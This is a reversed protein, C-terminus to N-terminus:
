PTALHWTAEIVNYVATRHVKEPLPQALRWEQTTASLSVTVADPSVAALMGVWHRSEEILAEVLAHPPDSVEVPAADALASGAILALLRGLIAPPVGRDASEVWVYCDDHGSYWLCCGPLTPLIPQGHHATAIALAIEDLQQANPKNPLGVFTLEYPHWGALFGPVDDRRMVLAEDSLGVVGAALAAWDHASCDIGQAAAVQSPKWQVYQEDLFSNTAVDAVVVTDSAAKVLVDALESARAATAQVSWGGAAERVSFSLPFPACNLGIGNVSFAGDHRVEVVM